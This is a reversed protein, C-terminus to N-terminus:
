KGIRYLNNLARIYIAGEGIAYSALTRENIPNRALVEFKKGTKIVTTQGQEDLFYIKGNSHVPSASMPGAAREQWIVEGTMPDVCTAIGGDSIFYLLDDVIMFSPTNPARKTIEWEVHSDTVNGKSKEDVRIGLLHAREYGTGVFIMNKYVGPKPIVSWGGYNVSWLEEGTKPDYSFVAGSAPSIIQSRGGMNILTPTSFSFKRSQPTESRPKKWAVKGNKKYLAVIFPDTGADASFILLDGVVIPTGGNGHVPNYGLEKNAWVIEGKLDLCATGMHGFHVYVKGNEIIPTPSAHSNKHHIPRSSSKQDFVKTDWVTKGNEADFCLVRLERKVGAADQNDGQAYATTLYIRGDSLVPSSWGKGPVPVKWRVNETARWKLPLSKVKAHGDETPGRFRPWDNASCLTSFLLAHLFHIILIKM